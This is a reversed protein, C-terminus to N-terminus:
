IKVRPTPVDVELWTEEVPGNPLPIGDEFASEVYGRILDETNELAEERTAGFTSILNLGLVYTVWQRTAPDHELVVKFKQRAM